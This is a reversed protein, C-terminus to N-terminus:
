ASSSATWFHDVQEYRALSDAAQWPLLSASFGWLEISGRSVRGNWIKKPASTTKNSTPPAAIVMILTESWLGCTVSGGRAVLEDSADLVVEGEDLEDLEILEDVEVTAVVDVLRDLRRFSFVVVDFEGVGVCDVVVRATTVVVVRAENGVVWVVSLPPRSAPRRPRAVGPPDCGDVPTSLKSPGPSMM